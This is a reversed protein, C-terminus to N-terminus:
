DTDSGELVAFTLHFPLRPPRPVGFTERLDSLLPCTVSFWWHHGNTRAEPDFEFEVEAGPALTPPVGRRRADSLWDGQRERLERDVRRTDRGQGQLWSRRSLLDGIEVGGKWLDINTRPRENRFVSIHPNWAPCLITSRFLALRPERDVHRSDFIRDRDVANIWQPTLSRHAWPGYLRFWDPDCEVLLWWGRRPLSPSQPGYRIIGTATPM